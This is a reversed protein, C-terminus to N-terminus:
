IYFQQLFSTAVATTFLYKWLFRQYGIGVGYSKVKGPYKVTSNGYTSLPENHKLTIAEIIIKDKATFQYGYSLNYFDAADPLFNALVFLSSGKFTGMTQSSLSDAASLDNRFSMITIIICILVLYSLHKM